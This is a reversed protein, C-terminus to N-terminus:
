RAIEIGYDLQKLAELLVKPQYRKGYRGMTMSGSTSHGVLESILSEEVRKQKLHNIFSHRLSHYVKRPEDTIFKRNFQQYWKGFDHAYGDRRKHLAPWLRQHQKKAWEVYKLFGAKLLEHHLPIVRESTENKVEKDAMHDNISICWLNDVQKIDNCHLQCIENLRMGQLMGILPVWYREPRKQNWTINRIINNMDDATYAMRELDTRSNRQIKLGIAPNRAIYEEKLAFNLMSSLWTLHKNVSTTSMPKTDNMALLQFITKDRYLPNKSFNAPLILLKAKYDKLVDRNLDDINIDSIVDVALKLSYEVEMKSKVRWRQQGDKLFEAIVTSLTRKCAQIEKVLKPKVVTSVMQQKQQDDLYGTRLLVFRRNIQYLYDKALFIATRKDTTKLSRILENRPILHKLDQPVRVRIYYVGKKYRLYTPIM